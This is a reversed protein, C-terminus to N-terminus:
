RAGRQTAAQSILQINQAIAQKFSAVGEEDVGPDNGPYAASWQSPTVGAVADSAKRAQSLAEKLDGLEYLATASSNLLWPNDPAELLGATLVAQAERPENLKLLVWAYDNRPAWDNPDFPLFHAYDQAAAAYNSMYAEILARVYYSNPTADGELAIQTDIQAMAAPFENKLFYVRALEHHVYPLNPDLRAAELFLHQARDIDYDDPYRYSNFHVEADAFARSGSPDLTLSFDEYADLLAERGYQAIAFLALALAICALVATTLREHKM